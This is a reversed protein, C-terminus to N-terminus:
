ARRRAREALDDVIGLHQELEREIAYARASSEVDRLVDVRAGDTRDVVVDWATRSGNKTQVRRSVVHFQELGDIPLDLSGPWPLPGHRVSLHGFSVEVRTKNLLKTLGTYALFLGAGGHTVMFLLPLTGKVIQPWIMGNWFLAFFIVIAGTTRPWPWTLVLSKGERQVQVGSPLAEEIAMTSSIAVPARGGDSTPTRTGNEDVHM